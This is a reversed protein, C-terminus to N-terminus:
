THLHSSKGFHSGIRVAPHTTLVMKLFTFPNYFDQTALPSTFTPRKITTCLNNLRKTITYPLIVAQICNKSLCVFNLTKSFTKYPCLRPSTTLHFFKMYSTLWFFLNVFSFFSFNVFATLRIQIQINAELSTKSQHNTVKFFTMLCVAIQLILPMKQIDHLRMYGAPLPFLRALAGM